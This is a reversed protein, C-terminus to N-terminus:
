PITTVIGKITIHNMMDNYRKVLRQCRKSGHQGDRVLRSNELFTIVIDQITIVTSLTTVCKTSQQHTM